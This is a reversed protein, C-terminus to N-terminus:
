RPLPVYVISLLSSLEGASRWAAIVHDWLSLRTKLISISILPRQRTTVATSEDSDYDPRRVTTYLVLVDNVSDQSM